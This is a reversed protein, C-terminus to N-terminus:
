EEKSDYRGGEVGGKWWLVTEGKTHRGRWRCRKKRGGPGEQEGCGSFCRPVASSYGTWSRRNHLTKSRPFPGLAPRIPKHRSKADVSFGVGHYIITPHYSADGM